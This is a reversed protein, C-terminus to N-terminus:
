ELYNHRKIIEEVSIGSFIRRKKINAFAKEIPNLDPSYKPLPLLTHGNDELIKKIDKKNHFPANDM